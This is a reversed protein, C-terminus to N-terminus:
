CAAPQRSKWLAHHERIIQLIGAGDPVCRPITMDEPSALPADPRLMFRRAWEVLESWMAGAVILPTDYLKRVQLLQWIMMMELVSGIGGPVM